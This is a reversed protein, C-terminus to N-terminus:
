KTRTFRELANLPINAETIGLLNTTAARWVEDVAYCVGKNLTYDDETMNIPSAELDAASYTDFFAKCRQLHAVAARLNVLGSAIDTSISKADDTFGAM